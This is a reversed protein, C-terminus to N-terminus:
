VSRIYWLVMNPLSSCWSHQDIKPKLRPYVGDLDSSRVLLKEVWQSWQLWVTHHGLILAVGYWWGRFWGYKNYSKGHFWGDLSGMPIGQPDVGQRGCNAGGFQGQAGGLWATREQGRGCGAPGAAIGSSLWGLPTLWRDVPPIESAWGCYSTFEIYIYIIIYTHMHTHTWM